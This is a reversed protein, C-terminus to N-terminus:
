HAEIKDKTFIQMMKNYLETQYFKEKPFATRLHSEVKAQNMKKDKSLDQSYVMALIYAFDHGNCIHLKDANREKYGIFKEKLDDFKVDDNFRKSIKIISNIFNSLNLSVNFNSVEIFESFKMKKFNLNLGLDYNIWKLIGIDYAAQFVSERVDESSIVSEIDRFIDIKTFEYYFRDFAESNVLMIEVDHYDTFIIGKDKYEHIKGSLLDFDSDCIGYVHQHKYERLRCVANIVEPKGSCPSDFHLKDDNIIGNFFGVDSDGEVVFFIKSQFKPHQFSTIVGGIWDDITFSDRLSAMM